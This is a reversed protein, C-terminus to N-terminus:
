KSIKDMIIIIFATMLKKHMIRRVESVHWNSYTQAYLLPRSHYMLVTKSLWTYINEYM